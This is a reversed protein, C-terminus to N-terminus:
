KVEGKAAVIFTKLKDYLKDVKNEISDGQIMDCYNENKETYIRKLTTNVPKLLKEKNINLEELDWNTIQKKKANLVDKITPMRLFKNDSQTVTAVFPPKVELIEMANEVQHTVLFYEDCKKIDTVLSICPWGLMEALILGTQGSDGNSAQRGCLVIDVKEIKLIAAKIMESVAGTQYTLDEDICIRIAQNIKISLAARLIKESEKNSATLAISEIDNTEECLRALLELATADYTNIIKNAYSIDVTYEEENVVWDKSLVMDLDQVQKLCVVIKM